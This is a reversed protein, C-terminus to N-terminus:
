MLCRSTWRILTHPNNTYIGKYMPVDPYHVRKGGTKDYVHMTLYDGATEDGEVETVHRSLQVWVTPSAKSPAIPTAGAQNRGGSDNGGRMDADESAAYQVVLSMQPNYGLNYKDIKPGVGVPWCSHMTYRYKFLIPNWNMFVNSFYRCISPYDIWFVGNDQLRASELNYELAARAEPTWRATDEVSYPGRWRKRSWPNARAKLLREGDFEKVGLVAYAHSPVLGLGEAEDEDIEGTAVTILCDGFNHASLLREWVREAPQYNDLPQMLMSGRPSSKQRRHEEFFIQEPVWGTLAFLDIGSNSGPFDYGGNVKLYAKEIISVWLETKDTSASCLLRGDSRVPLLDDVVV